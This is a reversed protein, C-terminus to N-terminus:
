DFEATFNTVKNEGANFLNGIMDKIKTAKVTLTYNHGDTLNNDPQLIYRNPSYTDTSVKLSFSIPNVSSDNNDILEFDSSSITAHDLYIDNFDIDFPADASYPTNIYSLSPNVDDFLANYVELIGDRSLSVFFSAPSEAVSGENFPVVLEISAIAKTENIQQELYTGNADMLIVGRDTAYFLQAQFGDSFSVLDNVTTNLGYDSGNLIVGNFDISVVNGSSGIAQVGKYTNIDDMSYTLMKVSSNIDISTIQSINKENVVVVSGEYNAVYVNRVETGALNIYTKDIVDIAQGVTSIGVTDQLTIEMNTSNYDYIKLGNQPSVTYIKDPYGDGSSSKGVQVKYINKELDYHGVQRLKYDSTSLLLHYFGSNNTSVVITPAYPTGVLVMSTIQDSLPYFSLHSLSPKSKPVHFDVKYIDIGGQRAVAITSSNSDKALLKVSYSSFNTALSDLPKYGLYSKPSNAETRTTFSWNDKGNYAATGYYIDNISQTLNVDIKTGYPLPENPIFKLLTNFVEIKGAIETGSKSNLVTLFNDSTYAPYSSLNKSFDLVIETSILINGDADKPKTERLILSSSDVSDASTTFSYIYDEALSRGEIDKVGTTVVIQYSSSPQLYEHPTVYVYNSGSSVGTYSGIIFSEYGEGDTIFQRIYATNSNVTTIDLPSSFELRVKQATSFQEGIVPGRSISLYKSNLSDTSSQSADTQNSGCGFLLLALFSLTIYKIM